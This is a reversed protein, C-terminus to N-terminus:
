VDGRFADYYRHKYGSLTSILRYHLRFERGVKGNTLFGSFGSMYHEYLESAIEGATPYEDLPYNIM